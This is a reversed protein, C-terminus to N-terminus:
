QQFLNESVTFSHRICWTWRLFHSLFSFWSLQVACILLYCKVEQLKKKTQGVNQPCLSRTMTEAHTDSHTHTYQTGTHSLASIVSIVSHSWRLKLFFILFCAVNRNQYLLHRWLQPFFMIAIGWICMFVFVIITLSMIIQHSSHSIFHWIFVSFWIWGGVVM